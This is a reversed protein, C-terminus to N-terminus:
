AREAQRKMEAVKAALADRHSTLAARLRPDTEEGIADDYRELNHEEGSAFAALSGEDLGIIASRASIVTKHVTGMLSGDDDIKAGRAALAGHIDGHASAHLADVARLQSLLDADDAREIAARYGERADVLATHLASLHEHTMPQM